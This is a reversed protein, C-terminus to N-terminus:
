KKDGKSSKSSSVAVRECEGQGRDPIPRDHKKDYYDMIDIFINRFLATIPVALFIGVIGFLGGGLFIGFIVWFPKIKLSGSLLKPQIFNADVQQLVVLSIIAILALTFSGTFTTILGTIVTATIAGFYPILNFAGTMLALLPAYKVGIISLIIFSAIFIIIADVIMCYIYKNAFENIMRLYRVLISRTKDNSFVVRFFRVFGKKLNARDLLIYVSIVFGMFVKFVGSGANIVGQAYKNVNQFNLYSLLKDLSFVQNDFLQKMFGENVSIGFSLSNFWKEFDSVLTPLNNYFDVINSVVAPIISVLLLVIAALFIIYITAVAIGRRNKVLFQSSSKMLTREIFRCPVLLVYAIVFGIIFPNLLGMIVSFFDLIKGFNDFTKYVAIVAVAFLFLGFYRTVDKWKM